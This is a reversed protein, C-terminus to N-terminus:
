HVLESVMQSHILKFQTDSIKEAVVVGDDCLVRIRDGISLVKILEKLEIRQGCFDVHLAHDSNAPRAVEFRHQRRRATMSRGFGAALRWYRCRGATKNCWRLMASWPWRVLWIGRRKLM